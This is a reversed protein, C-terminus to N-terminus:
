KEKDLRYCKCELEIGEISLYNYNGGAEKRSSYSSVEQEHKEQLKKDHMYVGGFIAAGMLLGCGISVAWGFWGKHLLRGQYWKETLTFGRELLLKPDVKQLLRGQYWKETKQELDEMPFSFIFFYKLNELWFDRESLRSQPQTPPRVKTRPHIAHDIELQLEYA